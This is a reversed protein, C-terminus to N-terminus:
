PRGIVPMTGYEVIVNTQYPSVKLCTGPDRALMEKLEVESMLATDHVTRDCHDCARNGSDGLSKLEAWRKEKPCVLVKLLEGSDAYLARRLPHYRVAPSTGDAWWM